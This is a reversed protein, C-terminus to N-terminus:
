FIDHWVIRLFRYSGFISTIKIMLKLIIASIRRVEYVLHIPKTSRAIYTKENSWKKVTLLKTLAAWDNLTTQRRFNWQFPM